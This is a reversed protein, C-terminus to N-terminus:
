RAPLSKLGALPPEIFPTGSVYLTGSPQGPAVFRRVATLGEPHVHVARDVADGDFALVIEAHAAPAGLADRYIELDSENITQRLPIGTLAVIEPYVSTDMLIIGGPHEILLARLVPPIQVEYPRRANINTTGEVYVVARERMMQGANLAVLAFLVAAAYKAWDTKFERAAVIAFQAAFGLSLALAPLMEMGYRTNYWSFPWWVPLFIPV